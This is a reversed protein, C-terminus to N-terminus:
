GHRQFRGAAIDIFTTNAKSLIHEPRWCLSFHFIQPPNFSLSVLRQDQEVISRLMTSAGLGDAVAQHLLHSFNSQLILQFNVGAEKCLQDLVARQLFNTGFVVMALGDLNQATVSTSSAYPHKRSVCLVTEDQGVEVHHWGAPVRRNELMGLDIAGSDLMARVEDASGEMATIVVSPFARHFEAIVSPFFQGGYMPPMGIKVEGVRLEAAASLEQKALALEEFIREARKLLLHTEPGPVIKRAQRTFLTVGLEGELKRIAMSLAPQAIRLEKAAETFSGHRAVAECYRLIKVDIPM